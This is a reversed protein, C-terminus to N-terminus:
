VCTRVGRFRRSLRRVFRATAQLLPYPRVHSYLILPMGVKVKLAHPPMGQPLNRNLEEEPVANYHADEADLM